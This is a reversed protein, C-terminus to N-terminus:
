SVGPNVFYDASDRIAAISTVGYYMSRILGHGGSYLQTPDPIEPIEPDEPEITEPGTECKIETLSHETVKCHVKGNIKVYAIHDSNTTFGTGTLTLLQGGLSSGSSYSVSDIRPM